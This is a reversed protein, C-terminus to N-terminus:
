MKITKDYAAIVSDSVAGRFGKNELAHVGAITTGAPSCVADKLAEPHKGSIKVLEASGVLTEIAYSIAKDRPLGCEVGGDALSEIFMFVYAPGCATICCAADIMKEPIRDLTGANKLIDTFEGFDCVADNGCYLIMGRGVSVPMNPMIRIVPYQGESLKEIDSVSKGAAMTVLVFKDSRKKLLPAIEEFLEPLIQPKVGLFIYEANEAIDANDTYKAGLESALKQAKETDKDAIAIDKTSGSAAKALAGGMNGAGIFGVKYKM